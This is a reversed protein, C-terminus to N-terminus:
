QMRNALEVICREPPCQLSPILGIWASFNRGRALAPYQWNRCDDRKFHPCTGPVTMAKLLPM